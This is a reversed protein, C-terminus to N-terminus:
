VAHASRDAAGGWWRGKSRAHQCCTSAAEEVAPLAGARDLADLKTMQAEDLEFDFVNRANLKRGLMDHLSAPNKADLWATQQIHGSAKGNPEGSSSACSRPARASRPACTRSRSPTCRRAAEAAGCPDM